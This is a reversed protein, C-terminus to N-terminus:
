AGGGALAARAAHVHEVSIESSGVKTSHWGHILGSEGDNFHKSIEAFPALAERLRAIEADKSAIAAGADRIARDAENAIEAAAHRASKHGEKYCLNRVRDAGSKGKCMEVAQINMVRAHFDSM